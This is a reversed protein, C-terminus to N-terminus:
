TPPYRGLGPRFKKSRVRHPAACDFLRRSRGFEKLAARYPVAPDPGITAMLNYGREAARRVAKATRAGIWIPPRPKQVPRPSITVNKVRSFKGEFTVNEETWLRDVLHVGEAMCATREPRPMCFGSFEDIRYGRDWEM